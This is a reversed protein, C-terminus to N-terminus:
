SKKGSMEHTQSCLSKWNASAVKPQSCRTTQQQPFQELHGIVRALIIHLHKQHTLTTELAEPIVLRLKMEESLRHPTNQNCARLPQMWASSNITIFMMRATEFLIALFIPTSRLTLCQKGLCM